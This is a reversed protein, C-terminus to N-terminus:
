YVFAESMHSKYIGFYQKHRSNKLSRSLRTTPTNKNAAQIRSLAGTDTHTARM